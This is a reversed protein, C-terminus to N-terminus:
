FEEWVLLLNSFQALLGLIDFKPFRDLCRNRFAFAFSFTMNCLLLPAPPFVVGYLHMM